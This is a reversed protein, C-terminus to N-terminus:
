ETRLKKTYSCNEMLFARTVWRGRKGDKEKKLRYKELHMEVNKFSGHKMLMERLKDGLSAHPLTHISATTNWPNRDM